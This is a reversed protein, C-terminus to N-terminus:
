KRRRGVVALAGLGLLALSTPEPVTPGPAPPRRTVEWTGLLAARPLDALEDAAFWINGTGPGALAADFMDPAVVVTLTGEFARAGATFSTTPFSVVSYLNLGPDFKGAKFAYTFGAYTDTASVLVGSVSDAGITVTTTDTGFFDALYLGTWANGSTTAASVGTTATITIQNAVSLDVELLVAARAAAPAGASFAMVAVALAARRVFSTLSRSM